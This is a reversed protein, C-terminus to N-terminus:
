DPEVELRLSEDALRETRRIAGGLTRGEVKVLLFTADQLDTPTPAAVRLAFRSPNNEVQDLDVQCEASKTIRGFMTDIGYDLHANSSPPATSMM